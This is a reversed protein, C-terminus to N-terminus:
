VNRTKKMVKGQVGHVFYVFRSISIVNDNEQLVKQDLFAERKNKAAVTM